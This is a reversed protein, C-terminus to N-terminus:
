VGIGPLVDDADADDVVVVVVVLALVDLRRNMSGLIM